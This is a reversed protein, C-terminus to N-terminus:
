NEGGEGEGPEEGVPSRDLTKKKRNPKMIMVRKAPGKSVQAKVFDIRNENM